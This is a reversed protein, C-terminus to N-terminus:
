STSRREELARLTAEWIHQQIEPSQSPRSCAETDNIEKCESYYKGTLVQDASATAAFVVTEAGQEPTKLLMAQFPYAIARKWLPIFRSLSTHVMGPSVLMMMVNTSPQRNQHAQQQSLQNAWYFTTATMALKAKSYAQFPTYPNPSQKMWIDWENADDLCPPLQARKELKSGVNVIRSPSNSQQATRELIPLLNQTLQVWGFHNVVMSRDWNMASTQDRTATTTITKEEEKIMAGANNILIHLGGGGGSNDTHNTRIWSDNKVSQSFSEVSEYSTLDLPYVRCKDHGLNECVLTGQEVNRCGM